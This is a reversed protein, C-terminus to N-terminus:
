RNTRALLDCDSTPLGRRFDLSYVIRNQRRAQILGQLEVMCDETRPIRLTVDIRHFVLPAANGTIDFRYAGEEEECLATASTAELVELVAVDSPEKMDFTIDFLHQINTFSIGLSPRSSYLLTAIAALIIISIMDPSHFRKKMKM